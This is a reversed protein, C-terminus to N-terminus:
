CSGAPVTRTFPLRATFACGGATTITVTGRGEGTLVDGDRRLVVPESPPEAFEYDLDWARGQQSVTTYSWSRTDGAPAGFVGWTEIAERLDRRWYFWAHIGSRRRFTVPVGSSRLTRTMSMAQNELFRECNALLLMSYIADRARPDSYGNGNTILVRTHRLNARLNRLQHGRAYGRGARGLMAGFPARIFSETLVPVNTQGIELFGSISIATGFYGPLAAALRLAGYGGMSAGAITHHERGPLIRFRREVAPIVEDLYYREWDRGARNLWDVYFGRGGEPMVVIAPLGSVTRRVNGGSSWSWTRFDDTIGHLLYLVPYAADPDYGDPLLVKMHLSKLGRSLVPQRPNVNGASPADLTLLTQEARATSTVCCALALGAAFAAIRYRM